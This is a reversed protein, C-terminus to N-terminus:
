LPVANVDTMAASAVRTARRAADPEKRLLWGHTLLFVIAQFLVPDEAFEPETTLAPDVTVHVDLDDHPRALLAPIGADFDFVSGRRAGTGFHDVDPL